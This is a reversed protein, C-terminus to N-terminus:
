WAPSIGLMTQAFITSGTITESIILKGRVEGGCESRLMYKGAMSFEGVHGGVFPSGFLLLTNAHANIVGEIRRSWVSRLGYCVYRLTPVEGGVYLPGGWETSHGEEGRVLQWHWDSNFNLLILDNNLSPAGGETTTM